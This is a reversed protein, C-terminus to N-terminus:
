QAIIDFQDCIDRLKKSVMLCLNKVFELEKSDLIEKQKEEPLDEFVWNEWKGNEPNQYRFYIGSINRRMITSTKPQSFEVKTRPSPDAMLFAEQSKLNIQKLADQLLGWQDAGMDNGAIERTYTHAVQHAIVRIEDITNILEQEM